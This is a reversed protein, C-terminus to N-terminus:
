TPKFTILRVLEMRKQKVIRTIQLKTLGAETANRKRTVKVPPALTANGADHDLQPVMPVAAPGGQETHPAFGAEATNERSYYTQSPEQATYSSAPYQLTSPDISYGQEMQPAFGARTDDAQIHYMQSVEQAANFADGQENRSAFGNGSADQQPYHMQSPEQTAYSLTPHYVPSDSAMPALIGRLAFSQYGRHPGPMVTPWPHQVAMSMEPVRNFSNMDLHHLMPLSHMSEAGATKLGHSGGNLDSACYGEPLFVPASAPLITSSSPQNFAPAAAQTSPPREFNLGDMLTNEMSPTILGPITWEEALAALRTFEMTSHDVPSPIHEVAAHMPYANVSTPLGYANSLGIASPNYRLSSVFAPM